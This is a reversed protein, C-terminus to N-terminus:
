KDSLQRVSENLDSFLKKYRRNNLYKIFWPVSLLMLIITGLLPLSVIENHWSLNKVGGIDTLYNYIILIAFLYFIVLYIIFDTTKIRKLKKYFVLSSDKLSLNDATKTLVLLRVFESTATILLFIGVLVLPVLSNVSLNLRLYVFAYIMLGIYILFILAYLLVKIKVDLLSKSIAKSHKLAMTKELSEKSFNSESKTYHADRWMSKLDNKDM